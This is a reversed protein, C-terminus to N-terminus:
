KFDLKKIEGWEKVLKNASEDEGVPVSPHPVNPVRLLGQELQQEVDRLNQDLVTISDSATKMQAIEKDTNKGEKKMQAIIKSFENRKQRLSEAELLIKRRQGDLNLIVDLDLKERKNKIAEKFKESNKKIFKLDLM